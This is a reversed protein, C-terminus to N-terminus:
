VDGDFRYIGLLITQKKGPITLDVSKPNTSPHFDVLLYFSGKSPDCPYLRGNKIEIENGLDTLLKGVAANVDSPTYSRHTVLWRGEPSPPAAPSDDGRASAASGSLLTALLALRIMRM